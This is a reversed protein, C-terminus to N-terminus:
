EITMRDNIFPGYTENMFVSVYNSYKKNWLARANKGYLEILKLLDDREFFANM